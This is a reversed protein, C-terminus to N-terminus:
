KRSEFKPAIAYPELFLYLKFTQEKSEGNRNRRKSNNVVEMFNLLAESLKFKSEDDHPIKKSFMSNVAFTFQNSFKTPIGFRSRFIHLSMTKVSNVDIM